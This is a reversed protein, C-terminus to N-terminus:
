SIFRYKLRASPSTKGAEAAEGIYRSLMRNAFHVNDDAVDSLGLMRMWTLHLFCIYIRASASVVCIPAPPTYPFRRTPFPRAMRVGLPGTQM